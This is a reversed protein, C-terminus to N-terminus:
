EILGHRMAYLSIDANKDINMKELVRSRYTSITKVSLNLENAINSIGRGKALALMVQFERESLLEHPATQTETSFFDALKESFNPSVYKHGEMITNVANVLEEPASDKAIYGSAGIKFARVAYQEEPHVSLILIPLTHGKQRIESLTAMGGKGPMSIDLIALGYKENEIKKILEDGTSVEDVVSIEGIKTLINKLGERVISHDDAIIAKM